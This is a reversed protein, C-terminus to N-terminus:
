DDEAGAEPRSEASPRTGCGYQQRAAALVGNALMKALRARVQRDTLGPPNEIDPAHVQDTANM